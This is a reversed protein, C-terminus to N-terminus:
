NFSLLSEKQQGQAYISYIQPLLRIPLMISLIDMLYFSM